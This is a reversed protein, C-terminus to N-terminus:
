DQLKSGATIGGLELKGSEGCMAINGTELGSWCGM